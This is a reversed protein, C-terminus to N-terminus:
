IHQHTAYTTHPSCTNTPSLKIPQHFRFPKVSVVEPFNSAKTSAANIFVRFSGTAYEDHSIKKIRRVTEVRIDMLHARVDDETTENDLADLYHNGLLM